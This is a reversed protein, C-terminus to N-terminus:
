AGAVFKPSIRRLREPDASFAAPLLKVAVDRSLKEDHARYVEGMGGAGLLSLLRYRGLRSGAREGSPATM